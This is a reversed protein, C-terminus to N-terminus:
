LEEPYGLNNMFDIVLDGVLTGCFPTCYNGFC